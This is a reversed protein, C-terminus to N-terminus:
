TLSELSRVAIVEDARLLEIASAPLAVVRISEGIANFIELVCGVEGDDPHVVEDVLTAIDGRQLQHEPVDRSLAIRQYPEFRM